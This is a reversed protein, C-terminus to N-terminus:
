LKHDTQNKNTTHCHYIFRRQAKCANIYRDTSVQFILLHFHIYAPLGCVTHSGAGGSLVHHICGASLRYSFFLTSM